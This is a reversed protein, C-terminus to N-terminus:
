TTDLRQGINARQQQGDKPIQVACSVVDTETHKPSIGCDFPMLSGPSSVERVASQGQLASFLIESSRLINRLDFKRSYGSRLFIEHLMYVDM